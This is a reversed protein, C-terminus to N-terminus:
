VGGTRADNPHHLRHRGRNQSFADVPRAEGSFSVWGNVHFGSRALGAAGGCAHLVSPDSLLRARYVDGACYPQRPSWLRDATAPLPRNLSETPPAVAKRSPAAAPPRSHNSAANGGGSAPGEFGKHKGKRTGFVQRGQRKPGRSVM